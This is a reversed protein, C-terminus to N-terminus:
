DKAEEPNYEERSGVRNDMISVRGRPEGAEGPCM